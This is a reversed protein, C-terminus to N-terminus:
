TYKNLISVLIFYVTQETSRCMRALVGSNECNSALLFRQTQCHALAQQDAVKSGGSLSRGEHALRRRTYESLINADIHIRECCGAKM